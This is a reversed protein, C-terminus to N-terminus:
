KAAGKMLLIDNWDYGEPAPLLFVTWGLSAARDALVSGAKRGANDGDTAITLRAPIPPLALGMLGSTSLAAWVQACHDLLGSALSLATEIGEAVVLPGEASSLRVAGGAVTGLMAKPPDITAKRAGDDSLYTRHLSFRQAGDVRALMAPLRKATPHWCASAFRLTDPLLCTIGRSRLYIEAPTGQVNVGRSWLNLAQQERRDADARAEAEHRAMISPDGAPGVAVGEVIGLARLAYLVDIFACGAKCNALLKGDSANTLSLSPRRDGHAPCCAVGYHGYWVGGLARTIREADTM